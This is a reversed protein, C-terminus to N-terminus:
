VAYAKQLLLAHNAQVLAYDVRNQNRGWRLAACDAKQLLGDAILLDMDILDPSGAFASPSQYPSNACGTPGVPLIQWVHQGAAQLFQLFDYAPQGLSGMGWGGPLSFIPLLIGATRRLYYQQM